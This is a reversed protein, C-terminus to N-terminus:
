TYDLRTLVLACSAPPCEARLSQTGTSVIPGLEVQGGFDYEGIGLTMLGAPVLDKLADYPTIEGEPAPTFLRVRGAVGFGTGAVTLHSSWVGAPLVWDAATLTPFPGAGLTVPVDWTVTFGDATGDVFMHPVDLFRANAADLNRLEERRILKEHRAHTRIQTHIPDNM